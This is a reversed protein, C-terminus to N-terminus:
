SVEYGESLSAQASQAIGRALYYRAWGHKTAARDLNTWIRLLDEGQSQHLRLGYRRRGWKTRIAASRYAYARTLWRSVM